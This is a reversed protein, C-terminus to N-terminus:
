GGMHVLTGWVMVFGFIVGAVAAIRVWRGNAFRLAAEIGLATITLLLGMVTFDLVTWNVESSYRMAIAPILLLSLAALVIYIPRKNNM